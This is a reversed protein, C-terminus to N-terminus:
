ALAIASVDVPHMELRLKGSAIRAVDLLDDIIRAQATANREIARMARSVIAPDLNKPEVLIRAWGLVANLPNRLEHSVTSLFEDKARMAKEVTIRAMRQVDIQKRLEGENSLRDSIDEITTVTGIVESGETLPGIRASQPMEDLGLEGHSAALPILYKHLGHSIISIRGSLADEYHLNLGRISLDPYMELLSRGLADAAQRGSHIEMWRNWVVIRLQRDTAFLGQHTQDSFWRVLAIQLRGVDAPLESSRTM